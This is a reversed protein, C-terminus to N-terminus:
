FCISCYKATRFNMRFVKTLKDLNGLNIDFNHSFLNHEKENVMENQHPQSKSFNQTSFKLQIQFASNKGLYM